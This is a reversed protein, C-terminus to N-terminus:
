LLKDLKPSMKFSFDTKLDNWIDGISISKGNKLPCRLRHNGKKVLKLSEYSVNKSDCYIFQEDFNLIENYNYNQRTKKLPVPPNKFLIDVKDM